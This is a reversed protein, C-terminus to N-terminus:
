IEAQQLDNWGIPVVNSVGRDSDVSRTRRCKYSNPFGTEANEDIGNNM